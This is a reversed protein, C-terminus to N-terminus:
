KSRCSSPNTTWRISFRLVRLSKKNRELKGMPSSAASWAFGFNQSNISAAFGHADLHIEGRQRTRHLAFQGFGASKTPPPLMALTAGAPGFGSSLRTDSGPNKPISGPILLLGLPEEVPM